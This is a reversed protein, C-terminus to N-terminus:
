AGRLVRHLERAIQFLIKGQCGPAPGTVPKFLRLLELTERLDSKEIAGARLGLALANPNAPIGIASVELLEQELYRRRVRQAGRGGRSHAPVAQVSGGASNQPAHETGDADVWKLPVFGVSVANLFKGQYLGYAIRAVPNIDTAFQIRQYLATKPQALQASPTGPIPAVTRVETILAKGLTFLIDGYQHANQFVPNRRYAELRWGSPSIIEGYRDVTEDSAIFDLVPLNASEAGPAHNTLVSADNSPKQIDIQISSFLM